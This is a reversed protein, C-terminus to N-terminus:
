KIGSGAKEVVMSAVAIGLRRFSSGVGAEYPSTPNSISFSITLDGRATLASPIIVHYWRWKDVFWKTLRRGNVSVEVEQHKLRGNALYGTALMRLTLDDTSPKELRFRVVVRNGEAWRHNKEQHSWGEILYHRPNNRVSFEIPTGIKYTPVVSMDYQEGEIFRKTGYSWSSADRAHGDVNFVQIDDLFPLQWGQGTWNYYYFERHRPKGSLASEFEQCDHKRTPFDVGLLCKFDGLRLPTGNRILPGRANVPKHLMLALSSSRVREPVDAIPPRTNESTNRIPLMGTGHDSIVFVETTDYAKISRIKSLLRRVITLGGRAQRIYAEVLDMEGSMTGLNENMVLPFHPTAFHLIKFTKKDKRAARARKEFLELFQVDNGHNSPPYGSVLVRSLFWRDDAYIYPKVATPLSRFMGYDLFQIWNPPWVTGLMDLITSFRIVDHVAPALGAHHVEYGLSALQLRIDRNKFDTALYDRFPKENRYPVGSLLFPINPRTTPYGSITNQFYTFGDLFEVERPYLNAIHDFYDSQFSDLIIVLINHEKGFEFLNDFQVTDKKPQPQYDFWYGSALSLVALLGTVREVHRITRTSRIAIYIAVILLAIWIVAEMWMHLRWRAWDMGRGDLPGFPWILVQSQIWLCAAVGLSLGRAVRYATPYRSLVSLVSFFVISLAIFVGVAPLVVDSLSFSLENSNGFCFTFPAVLTLILPLLLASILKDLFFPHNNKEM